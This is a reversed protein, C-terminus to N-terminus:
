LKKMFSLDNARYSSLSPAIYNKYMYMYIICQLQCDRTCAAHINYVTTSLRKYKCYTRDIWRRVLVFKKFKPNKSFEKVYKMAKTQNAAFM